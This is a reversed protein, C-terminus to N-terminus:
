DSRSAASRQRCKRMPTRRSQAEGISSSPRSCWSPSCSCSNQSGTELTSQCFEWLLEGLELPQNHEQQESSWTFWQTVLQGFWTIFFLIGLVVSLNYDRWLRRM